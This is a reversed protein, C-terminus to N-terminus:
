RAMPRIARDKLTVTWDTQTGDRVWDMIAECAATVAFMVLNRALPYDCLDAGTPQPVRYRDNWIIEAYDAALGVHLCPLGLEAATDTVNQRAETNDFADVILGSNSLLKKANRVTLTVVHPEADAQIAAYLHNALLEAKPGGVDEALWPQTGLNAAEVRDQDILRFQQVGQRALSEALNAGVAGTGCLTIQLDALRAMVAETRYAAEHRTAQQM